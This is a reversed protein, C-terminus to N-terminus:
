RYKLGYNVGYTERYETLIKVIMNNVSRQEEDAMVKLDKKLDKPLVLCIRIKDDAIEGHGM